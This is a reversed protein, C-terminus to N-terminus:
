VPRQFWLATLSVSLTHFIFLSGSDPGYARWPQLHMTRRTLGKCGSHGPHRDGARTVTSFQDPKLPIDVLSLRWPPFGKISVRDWIGVYRHGLGSWQKGPCFVLSASPQACVVPMPIQDDAGTAALASKSWSHRM